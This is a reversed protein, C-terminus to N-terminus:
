YRNLPGKAAAAGAAARDALSGGAPKFTKAAATGDAPVDPRPSGDCTSRSGPLVGNILYGDVKQTVCTNRGYQGHSGEDKVSILSNNLKSAMAPSGDYQTSPDFEAGVVLGVPYGNRKLDVAKEPPTWQAYACNTPGAQMAGSGYPYKERFLRMQEEYGKLDKSWPTECSVAPFVGETTPKITGYLIKLAKGADSSLKAQGAPANAADRIQGILQTSVDWAPRYGSSGLIYDLTTGDVPMWTGPTEVPREAVKARLDEFAALVAAPTTGFHYRSDRDAIWTALAVANEKAAVSVQKAQEYWLWDPHMSADLVSRNLKSPFMSGYVAGLYTGYSIGLYNIKKEGLVGRIVDMDRATNATSIYKRIGGGAAACGKEQAEADAEIQALQRDAPRSERLPENPPVECRLPTSRGVGRPDFGILDFPGAIKESKMWNPMTMGSGGPGGPNLLLVGQRHGPDTAKRRSISVSLNGDGPKQYNVPVVITACDM